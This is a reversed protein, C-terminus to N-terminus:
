SLKKANFLVHCYTCLDGKINKLYIVYQNIYFDGQPWRKEIRLSENKNSATYRGGIFKPWKEQILLAREVGFYVINIIKVQPVVVNQIGCGRCWISFYAHFVVIDYADGMKRFIWFVHLSIKSYKTAYISMIFSFNYKCGTNLYFNWLGLKYLLKLM